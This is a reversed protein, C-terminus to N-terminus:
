QSPEFLRYLYLLHVISFPQWHPLGSPLSFFLVVNERHDSFV